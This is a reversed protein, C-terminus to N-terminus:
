SSCRRCFCALWACNTNCSTIKPVSMTRQNLPLFLGLGLGRPVARARSRARETPTSLARSAIRSLPAKRTRLSSVRTEFDANREAAHGGPGGGALRFAGYLVPAERRQPARAKGREAETQGTGRRRRWGISVARRRARQQRSRRGAPNATSKSSAGRSRAPASAAAAGSGGSGASSRVLSPWIDEWSTFSTGTAGGRSGSPAGTHHGRPRRGRAQPREPPRHQAQVGLDDVKAPKQLWRPPARPAPLSRPARGRRRAPSRARRASRPARCSRSPCTGASCRRPRRSGPCRRSPARTRAELRQRQAQRALAHRRVDLEDGLRAHGDDLEDLLLTPELEVDGEVHRVPRRARLNHAGVRAAEGRQARQDGHELRKQLLARQVLHVAAPDATTASSHM